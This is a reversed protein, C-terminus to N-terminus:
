NALEQYSDPQDYQIPYYRLRPAFGPWRACQESSLRAHTQAGELLHQSFEADSFESRAVGVVLAQDSLLGRCNLTFLAPALKRQTLDGSAGFIVITYPQHKEM